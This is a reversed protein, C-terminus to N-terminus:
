TKDKIKLTEEEVPCGLFISWVLFTNLTADLPITNWPVAPVQALPIVLFTDPNRQKASCLHLLARSAWQIHAPTNFETFVSTYTSLRPLRVIDYMGLLFNLDLHYSIKNRTYPLPFRCAFEESICMARIHIWLIARATHYARDSLGPYVTGTSDLCTHFISVITNYPVEIDIGDEFWWITGAFRIAADLAEQDTINKLVWSVCWLDRANTKQITILEELTLWPGTGGPFSASVDHSSNRDYSLSNPESPVSPGERIEELPVVPPPYPSHWQSRFSVRVWRNFGVAMQVFTLESRLVTFVILYAVKKWLFHLINLSLEWFVHAVTPHPLFTKHPRIQKWLGRLSLSAPTQFPCEYSSTGAVVVVLYFLIGLVTLTILIYAVSANISWMSQCLGCALLFLSIQLMVPLSEIFARFPWKELGDCKRQRDGCREIVSRGAHRLYRNLWQKGLMAIFAALLSIILSTYM